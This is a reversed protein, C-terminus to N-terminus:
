LYIIRMVVQIKQPDKKDAILNNEARKKAVKGILIQSAIPQYEFVRNLTM